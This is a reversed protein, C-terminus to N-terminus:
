ILQKTDIHLLRAAAYQAGFWVLSGCALFGAVVCIVTYPIPTAFLYAGFSVLLPLIVLLLKIGVILKSTLQRRKKASVKKRHTIIPVLADAPTHTIKKGGRAIAIPTRALVYITAGIVFLTIIGGVILAILPPMTFQILPATTQISKEPIVMTKFADNKLLLPFYLLTVWLWQLLCSAYGLGGFINAFTPNPATKKAMM